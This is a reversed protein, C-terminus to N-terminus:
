RFTVVGSASFLPDGIIHIDFMGRSHETDELGQFRTNIFRAIVKFLKNALETYDPNLIMVVNGNLNTIMPAGAKAKFGSAVLIDALDNAINDRARLSKEPRILFAVDLNDHQSHIMKLEAILQGRIQSALPRYASSDVKAHSNDGTDNDTKHFLAIWAPIGLFFMAVLPIVVFKFTNTQYLKHMERLERKTDQGTVRDVENAYRICEDALSRKEGGWLHSGTFDRTWARCDGLDKTKTWSAAQEIAMFCQTLPNFCGYKNKCENLLALNDVLLTMAKRIIQKATPTSWEAANTVKENYKGWEELSDSIEQLKKAKEKSTM